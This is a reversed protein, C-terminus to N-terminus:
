MGIYHAETGIFLEISNVFFFKFETFNNDIYDVCKILRPNTYKNCFIMFRTLRYINQKKKKM